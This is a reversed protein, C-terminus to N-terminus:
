DIEVMNEGFESLMQGLIKGFTECINETLKM